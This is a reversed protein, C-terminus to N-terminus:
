SVLIVDDEGCTIQAKLRFTTNINLPNKPKNLFAQKKKHAECPRRKLLVDHKNQKGAPKQWQGGDFYMWQGALPCHRDLLSKNDCQVALPATKNAREDLLRTLRINSSSM